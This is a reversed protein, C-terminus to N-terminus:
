RTHPLRTAAKKRLVAIATTCSTLRDPPRYPNRSGPLPDDHSGETPSRSAVGLAVTKRVIGGEAAPCGAQAAARSGPAPGGKAAGPRPAEARTQDAAQRM